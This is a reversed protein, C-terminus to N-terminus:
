YKADWEIFGPFERLQQIRGAIRTFLLTWQEERWRRILCVKLAFWLDKDTETVVM